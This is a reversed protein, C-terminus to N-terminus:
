RNVALFREDRCLRALSLERWETGAADLHAGGTWAHAATSRGPKMQDLSQLGMMRTVLLSANVELKPSFALLRADKGLPTTGAGTFAMLDIVGVLAGRLNCLGKFWASTAPVRTITDPLPVIEGAEALDVLWHQEGIMVGLRSGRPSPVAVVPAAADAATQDDFTPADLMM